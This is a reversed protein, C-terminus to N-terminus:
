EQEQEIQWLTVGEAQLTRGELAMRERPMDVRFLTGGVNVIFEQPFRDEPFAPNGFLAPNVYGFVARLSWVVAPSDQPQPDVRRLEVFGGPETRAVVAGISPVTVEALHNRIFKLM